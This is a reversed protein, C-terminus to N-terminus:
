KEAEWSESRYGDGTDVVKVLEALEEAHAYGADADPETRKEEPIGALSTLLSLIAALAAMSLIRLWNVDEIGSFETVGVAAIATQAATKAARIGAAKAWTKWDRKGM